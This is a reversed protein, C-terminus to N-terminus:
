KSTFRAAATRLAGPLTSLYDNRKCIYADAEALHPDAMMEEVTSASLVVVAIAWRHQRVFSLIELGSRDSLNLDTLVIDYRAATDADDASQQLREIAQDVTSVTKVRMDPASRQLAACLLAASPAYDEVYLINM